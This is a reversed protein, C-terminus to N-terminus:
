RPIVEFQKKPMSHMSRATVHSVIYYTGTQDFTKEISYVGGKQNTGKIMEHEDEGALWIEFLVEWADDVDQGNQTVRASLTVQEGAKIQAPPALEVEIPQLSDADNNQVTACGASLLTLLVAILVVSSRKM